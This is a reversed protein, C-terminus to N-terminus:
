KVEKKLKREHHIHKDIEKKYHFGGKSQVGIFLAQSLEMFRDIKEKGPELDIVEIIEDRTKNCLSAFKDMLARYDKDDLDPRSTFILWKLYHDLLAPIIMMFTNNVIFLDDRMFMQEFEEAYYITPITVDDDIALEFLVEKLNKPKIPLHSGGIIQIDDVQISIFENYVVITFPFAAKGDQIVGIDQERTIFSEIFIQEAIDRLEVTFEVPKIGLESIKLKEQRSSWLTRKCTLRTRFGLVAEPNEEKGVLYTLKEKAELNIWQPEIKLNIKGAVERLKLTSGNDLERNYLNIRHSGDSSFTEEVNEVTVTVNIKVLDEYVSFPLVTITKEEM